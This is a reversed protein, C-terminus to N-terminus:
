KVDLRKRQLSLVFSNWSEADFLVFCLMVFSWGKEFIFAFFLRVYFWVSLSHSNIGITLSFFVMSQKEKQELCFIKHKTQIWSAKPARYM